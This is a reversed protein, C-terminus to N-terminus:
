RFKPVTLSQLNRLVALTQPSYSANGSRGAGIGSSTSVVGNGNNNRSALLAMAMLAAQGFGRSTMDNESEEPIEQQAQQYTQNSSLVGAQQAMVEAQTPEQSAVEQNLADPNFVDRQQSQSLAAMPNAINRAQIKANQEQTYFPTFNKNTMSDYAQKTLERKGSFMDKAGQTGESYGVMAKQADGGFANLNDRIYRAGMDINKAPDLRDEDSYGYQKALAKSIQMLGVPGTGSAANPNGSSERQIVAAIMNPPVGYKKSAQNIFGGYKNEKIIAM